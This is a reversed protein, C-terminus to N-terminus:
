PRWRTAPATRRSRLTLNQAGGAHGTTKLGLKRASYSSVPLLGAGRRGRGRPAGRACAKTTSPHAARARPCMRIRPSTSIRPLVRQGLSDLLFSAKRYLAGGSLGAGPQGASGVGRHIEFLVPVEATPVRRPKLRSLAREAAYRGVAEPSALDAADRMSATGATASCTGAAGPSRRCRCTTGRVPMAAASAARTAPGSTRSSPRCAPAKPTPSAGTTSLAAAECRLAIEAAARRRDGLPPVPGPRARGRRTPWTRPMPCAPPRTKPPSARSTTPRRCRRAIAAALLRLHQCQRAAPGPLHQRGAVQRPQTRRERTRGQARQGVARRRRVSRRRRRQRGDQAGPGPHRRGDAPVTANRYAFGSRRPSTLTM